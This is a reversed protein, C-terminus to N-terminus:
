EGAETPVLPELGWYDRMTADVAKLDNDIVPELMGMPSKALNHGDYNTVFVYRENVFASELVVPAAGEICFKEELMKGPTRLKQNGLADTDIHMMIYTITDRPAKVACM